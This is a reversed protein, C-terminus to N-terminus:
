NIYIYEHKIYELNNKSKYESILLESLEKKVLKVKENSGSIDLFIDKLKEDSYIYTTAIEVWGHVDHNFQPIYHIGDIKIRFNYIIETKM